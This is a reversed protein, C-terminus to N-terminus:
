QVYDEYELHIQAFFPNFEKFIELKDDNCTRFKTSLRCHFEKLRDIRHISQSLQKFFELTDLPINMSIYLNEVNPLYGIYINFVNLSTLNHIHFRRIHIHEQYNCLIMIEDTFDILEIELRHLNPCLRLIRRFDALPQSIQVYITHLLPLTCHKPELYYSHSEPLYLRCSRLNNSANASFILEYFIRVSMLNIENLNSWRISIYQLHKSIELLNMIQIITPDILTIACINILLPIFHISKHQSNIFLSIINTSFLDICQDDTSNELRLHIKNLSKLLYNLRINLGYFINYLQVGHFYNTFLYIFLENPLDEFHTFM